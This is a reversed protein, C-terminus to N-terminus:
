ITANFYVSLRLKHHALTMVIILLLLLMMTVSQDHYTAQAEALDQQWQEVQQNTKALLTLLLLSTDTV